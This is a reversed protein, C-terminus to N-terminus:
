NPLYDTPTKIPKRTVSLRGLVSELNKRDGFPQSPFPIPLDANKGASNALEEYFATDNEARMDDLAKQIKPRTDPIVSARKSRHKGCGKPKTSAPSPSLPEVM